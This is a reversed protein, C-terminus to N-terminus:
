TNVRRVKQAYECVINPTRPYHTSVFAAAPSRFSHNAVVTQTPGQFLKAGPGLRTILPGRSRGKAKCPQFERIGQLLHSSAKYYRPVIEATVVFTVGRTFGLSCGWQSQWLSHVKQM